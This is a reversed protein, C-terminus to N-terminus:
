RERLQDIENLEFRTPLEKQSDNPEQPNPEHDHTPAPKTRLTETRSEWALTPISVPYVPKPRKPELEDDDDASGM